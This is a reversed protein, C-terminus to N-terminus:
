TRDSYGSLEFEGGRVAITMKKYYPGTAQKRMVYLKVYCYCFVDGIPKLKMMETIGTIEGWHRNPNETENNVDDGPNGGAQTTM